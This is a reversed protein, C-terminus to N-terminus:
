RSSMEKLFVLIDKWENLSSLRSKLTHIHTCFKGKEKKVRKKGKNLFLVM